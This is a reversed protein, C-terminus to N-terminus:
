YIIEIAEQVLLKFIDDAAEISIQTEEFDYDVWAQESANLDESMLTVLAGERIKQLLDEDLQGNDGVM